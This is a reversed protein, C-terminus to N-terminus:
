GYLETDEILMKIMYIDSSHFCKNLLNLEDMDKLFRSLGISTAKLTTKNLSIKELWSKKAEEIIYIADKIESNNM